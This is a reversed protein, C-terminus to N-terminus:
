CGAKMMRHGFRAILKEIHRVEELLPGSLDKQRAPTMRSEIAAITV